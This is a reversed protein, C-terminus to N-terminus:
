RYFSFYKFQIKLQWIEKKSMTEKPLKILNIKFRYKKLLLKNKTEDLIITVFFKKFSQRSIGDLCRLLRNDIGISPIIINIKSM